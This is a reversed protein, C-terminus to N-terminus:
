TKAGAKMAAYKSGALVEGDAEPVPPPKGAAARILDEIADKCGNRCEAPSSLPSLSAAPSSGMGRFRFRQVDRASSTLEEVQM